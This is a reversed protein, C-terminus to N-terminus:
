SDDEKLYKGQYVIEVPGELFVEKQDQHITIYLNGGNTVVQVEGSRYGSQDMFSLATAAAGSGCSLTEAEVGREYTRIKIKLGDKDSLLQVFNVNTGQPQYYKHYRLMKGIKDVAVASVKDCQLIVHPVGTNLYNKFVISSPLTFDDPFSKQDDQEILNVQVKVRDSKSIQAKHTGDGAEFILTDNVLGLKHALYCICRSGNVCMESEYGDANFFRMKFDALSSKELLLLGDAGIGTHNKCIEQVFAPIWFTYQNKLNDVVIFDNGSGHIKYFDFQM